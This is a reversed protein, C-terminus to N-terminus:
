RGQLRHVIEVVAPGYVVGLFAAFLILLEHPSM